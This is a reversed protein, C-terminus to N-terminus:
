SCFGLDDFTCLDSEITDLLGPKRPPEEFGEFGTYHGPLDVLVLFDSVDLLWLAGKYGITVCFM